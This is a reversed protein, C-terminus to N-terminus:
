SKWGHKGSYDFESWYEPYTARINGGGFMSYLYFHLLMGTTGWEDANVSKKREFVCFKKKERKMQLVQNHCNNYM